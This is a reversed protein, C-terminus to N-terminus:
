ANRTIKVKASDREMPANAANITLAFKTKTQVITITQGPIASASRSRTEAASCRMKQVTGAHETKAAMQVNIVKGTKAPVHKWTNVTAGPKTWSAHLVPEMSADRRVTKVTHCIITKASKYMNITAAANSKMKLVNEADTTKVDSNM